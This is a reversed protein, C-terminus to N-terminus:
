SPNNTKLKKLARSYLTHINRPDKNLLASIEKNKFDRQKLHYILSELISFTRNSFIQLPILDKEKIEFKEKKKKLANNYNIWITRQDRNLLQSIEKFNLSKNEKLYKSLSEAAGLKEKFIALPVKIEPKTKEKIISTLSINYKEKLKSELIEIINDETIAKKKQKKRKRIAFPALLISIEWANGSASYIQAILDEPVQEICFYFEEQSGRPITAGAITVPTNHIMATGPDIPACADITHVTFSSAPIKYSPDTEGVIDFGKVQIIGEKNCTNNIILPNSLSSNDIDGPILAPWELSLQSTTICATELLLFTESYPDSQENNKDKISATVTWTGAADWYQIGIVCSYNATTSDIISVLSCNGTRITSDKTFQVTITTDDLNNVTNQDKALVSFSVNTTGAESVTQDEIDSIDLIEPKINQYLTIERTETSNFNNSSDYISVNYYYTGLPLATWNITFTPETFTTENIIATSDRLLFTINKFNSETFSVNVYINSRGTSAKDEETGIGYSILPIETDSLWSINIQHLSITKSQAAFFARYALTNFNLGTISDDNNVGQWDTGNFIEIKIPNNIDTEKEIWNISNILTIPATTNIFTSNFSGQTPVSLPPTRFKVVLLPRNALTSESTYYDVGNNGTEIIVIGFNNGTTLWNKVFYTMNFTKLGVSSCVFTEFYSNDRSPSNDAGPITWPTGTLRNNWTAQAENWDELLLYALQNNGVDFCNLTLNAEIIESGQPIQDLSSGLINPFKILAHSHPGQRDITVSTTAGFNSSPSNASLYTDDTTNAFSGDQRFYLTKIEGQQTPSLSINGNQWILNSFANIDISSNDLFSDSFFGNMNIQFSSSNSGINGDADKAYLTLEHNGEPLNLYFYGKDCQSCFTLNTIGGDLSYSVDSLENITFNLTPTTDQVISNNLPSIITINPPGNDINIVAQMNLRMVVDSSTVAQQHIEVAIVNGNGNQLWAIQAPTLQIIPWIPATPGSRDEASNHVSTCISTHDATGFNQATALLNGNIYIAYCDDYDISVNVALIKSIDDINFNRRFYFTIQDLDQLTTGFIGDNTGFGLKAPGQNWLSDDYSQQIWNDPLNTNTDEYKWVANTPIIEQTQPSLFLEKSKELFIALQVTFVILILISLIIISLRALSSKLKEKKIETECAALHSKLFLTQGINAKKNKSSEYLKIRKLLECKRDELEQMKAPM